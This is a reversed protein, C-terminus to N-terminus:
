RHIVGWYEVGSRARSEQGVAREDWRVGRVLGSPFNCSFEDAAFVDISTGCCIPSSNQALKARGTSGIALSM